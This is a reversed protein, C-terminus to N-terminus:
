KCRRKKAKKRKKPKDWNKGWKKRFVMAWGKDVESWRDYDEKSSYGGYTMQRM